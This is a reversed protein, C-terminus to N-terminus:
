ETSEFSKEEMFKDMRRFEEVHKGRCCMYLSHTIGCPLYAWYVTLIDSLFVLESYFGM